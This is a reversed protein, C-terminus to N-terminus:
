QLREVLHNPDRNKYVIEYLANLLPMQIKKIKLLSMLVLLTHKGEITMDINKPAIGKGIMEGFRFNRSKNSTCTLLLDGFGAPSLLTEKSGKYVILLMEIERFAHSLFHANTSGEFGLGKLIGSGMAYVNKLAGVLSVGIVDDSTELLMPTAVFLKKIEEIKKKDKGALIGVVPMDKVMEVAFMPGSLVCIKQDIKKQLSEALFSHSRSDLGKSGIILVTSLGFHRKVALITEVVYQSPIAVFIYDANKVTAVIDHSVIINKHLKYSLLDSKRIKQLIAARNENHEWCFVQGQQALIHALALGFGGCGLISIKKEMLVKM